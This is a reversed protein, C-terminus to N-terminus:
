RNVKYASVRFPGPELHLRFSVNERAKRTNSTQSTFTALGGPPRELIKRPPIKKITPPEYIITPPAQLIHM